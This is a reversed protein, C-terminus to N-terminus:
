NKVRLRFFLSLVFLRPPRSHCRLGLSYQCVHLCCPFIFIYITDCIYMDFLLRPPPVPTYCPAHTFPLSSALSPSLSALDSTVAESTSKFISIYVHIFVHIHNNIYIYIYVCVYTYTYICIYM